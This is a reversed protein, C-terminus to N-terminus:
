VFYKLLKKLPGTFIIDIDIVIDASHCMM